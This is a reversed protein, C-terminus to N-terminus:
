NAYQIWYIPSICLSTYGINNSYKQKKSIQKIKENEADYWYVNENNDIYKTYTIEDVTTTVDAQGVLIIENNIIEKHLVIEDSPNKMEFVKTGDDRDFTFVMKTSNYDGETLDVGQKYSTRNKFNVNVKIINM